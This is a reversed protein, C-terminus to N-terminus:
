RMEMTVGSEVLAIMLNTRFLMQEGTLPFTEGQNEIKFHKMMVFGAIRYLKHEPVHFHRENKYLEWRGVAIERMEQDTM